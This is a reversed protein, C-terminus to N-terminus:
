VRRRLSRLLHALAVLWLCPDLVADWVNGTPWRTILFVILAGLLSWVAPQSIGQKGSVVWPLLAIALAIALAMSSFGWQYISFDFVAFTDLLLVGGTAVAMLMWAVGWPSKIHSAASSRQVQQETSHLLVSLALFAASLSPIQFALGLWYSAGWPGPVWAWLALLWPLSRSVRPLRSFHPAIGAGVGAMVLSWVLHRAWVLSQASPLSPAFHPTLSTWIDYSIM